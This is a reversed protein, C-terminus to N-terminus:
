RIFDRKDANVNLSKIYSSAKSSTDALTFLSDIQIKFHADRTAGTYIVRIEGPRGTLTQNHSLKINRDRMAFWIEFEKKTIAEVSDFPIGKYEREFKVTLAKRCEKTLGTVYVFAKEVLEPAKLKDTLSLCM